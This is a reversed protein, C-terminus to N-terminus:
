GSLVTSSSGTPWCRRSRSCRLRVIGGTEVILVGNEYRQLRKVTPTMPRTQPTETPLARSTRTQLRSSAGFRDLLQTASKQIRVYNFRTM